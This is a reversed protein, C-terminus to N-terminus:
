IRFETEEEFWSAMQQDLEALIRLTMLSFSKPRRIEGALVRAWLDRVAETSAKEAYGDIYNLWDSDVEGQVSDTEPEPGVGSDTSTLHEIALQAIFKKNALAQTKQVLLENVLKAADENSGIIAGINEISANDIINTELRSQARIQNAYAELKAAPVDAISGILRDLAAIARSSTTITLSSESLRGEVSIDNSLHDNQSM